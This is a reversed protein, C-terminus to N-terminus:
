PNIFIPNRGPRKKLQEHNQLLHDTALKFYTAEKEDYLTNFLDIQSIRFAVENRYDEDDILRVAKAVFDDEDAAVFEGLGARRLIATGLRGYMYRGELAVVPRGLYLSDLVSNFGGFPSSELMMDGKDMEQLYSENQVRHVQVREEGLLETIIDRYNVFANNKTITLLPFFQFQVKRRATDAIRKLRMLHHYNTKQATWPCNIHVIERNKPVYKPRGSPSMPVAGLGPVLVPTESYELESDSPKFHEQSIMLYDIEAGFTSVPHGCWAIQVPAIRVNAALISELSMGVDVFIAAHFDNERVAELNIAGGDVTIYRIDAFLSKDVHQDVAKAGSYGILVLEYDKAIEALAKGYNRYVVHGFFWRDTLVAIRKRDPNPTNRIQYGALAQQVMRNIRYKVPGNLEPCIYTIAFYAHNIHVTLGTMRPDSFSYHEVVNALTQPNALYGHTSGSFNYYWLTAMGPDTDFLRKRDIKVHNRPSFLTLLKLYNNPQEQILDLIADTTKLNSMAFLNAIVENNGIFRSGMATPIAFDTRTMIFAFTQCLENVYTKIGGEVRVICVNKLHDFHHLFIECVADHAGALYKELIERANIEFVFPPNSM